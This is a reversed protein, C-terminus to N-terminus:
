NLKSIIYKNHKGKGNCTMRLKYGLFIITGVDETGIDHGTNTTICPKKKYFFNKMFDNLHTLINTIYSNVGTIKDTFPSLRAM